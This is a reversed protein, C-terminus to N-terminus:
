HYTLGAKSRGPTSEVLPFPSKRQLISQNRKIEAGAAPVLGLECFKADPASVARRAIQVWSMGFQLVQAPNRAIKGSRNCYHKNFCIRM